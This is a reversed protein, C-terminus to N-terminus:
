PRVELDTGPLLPALEARAAEPAVGGKILGFYRDLAAYRVGEAMRRCYGRADGETKFSPCVGQFALVASRDALLLADGQAPAVNGVAATMVFGALVWRALKKNMGTM